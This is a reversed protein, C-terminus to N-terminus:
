SFKYIVKASNKQMKPNYIAEIEEFLNEDIEENFNYEIKANPFQRANAVAQKIQKITNEQM